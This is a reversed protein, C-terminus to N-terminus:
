ESAPAFPYTITAIRNAGSFVVFNLPAAGPWALGAKTFDFVVAISAAANRIAMLRAPLPLLRSNELNGGREVATSAASLLSSHVYQSLLRYQLYHMGTDPMWEMLEEFRKPFPPAGEAAPLLENAVLPGFFMDPEIGQTQAAETILRHARGAEGLFSAAREDPSEDVWAWRMAEEFVARALTAAPVDEGQELLLNFARFNDRAQLFSLQQALNDSRRAIPASVSELLELMEHIIQRAETEADEASQPPSDEVDPVSAGGSTLFQRARLWL